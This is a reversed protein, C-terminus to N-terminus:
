ESIIEGTTKSMKTWNTPFDRSGKKKSDSFPYPIVVHGGKNALSWGAWCCFTSNACVLGGFQSLLFQKQAAREGSPPDVFKYDKGLIDGYQKKVLTMDDSFVYVNPNEYSSRLYEIARVYYTSNPQSFDSNNISDQGMRFHVAISNQLDNNGIFDNVWNSPRKLELARPFGYKTAEEVIKWSQFNGHLKVSEVINFFDADNENECFIPSNFINSSHMRYKLFLRELISFEKALIAFSQRMTGPLVSIGNKGNIEPWKYEGFSLGRERFHNSLPIGYEDLLLPTDLKGALFYGAAFEFLQNGLGGELKLVVPNM